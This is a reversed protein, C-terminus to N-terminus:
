FDLYDTILVLLKPFRGTPLKELLTKSIWASYVTDQRHLVARLSYSSLPNEKVQQRGSLLLYEEYYEEMETGHTYGQLFVPISQRVGNNQKSGM